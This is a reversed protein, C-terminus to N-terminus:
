VACSAPPPASGAQSLKSAAVRVKLPVGPLALTPVSLMSTIALSPLPPLTLSVKSMTTLATLSAGTIVAGGDMAMVSSIGPASVPMENESASAPLASTLTVRDTGLPLRLAVLAPPTVTPPVLLAMVRVPLMLSILANIAAAPTTKVVALLAVESTVSVTPILSPPLVSLVVSVRSTVATFSAGTLEIGAACLTSWSALRTNLLPLPLWILMPSTSAPALLTSTVSLTVLPTSVSAPVAPRDNVVPSPM